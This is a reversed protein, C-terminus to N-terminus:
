LVSMFNSTRQWAPRFGALTRHKYANKSRVVCCLMMFCRLSDHQTVKHTMAQAIHIDNDTAGARGAKRPCPGQDNSYRPPCGSTMHAFRGVAGSRPRVEEAMGHIVAGREDLRPGTPAILDDGKDANIKCPLQLRRALISGSIADQMREACQEFLLKFQPQKADTLFNPGAIRKRKAATRHCSWTCRCSSGNPIM